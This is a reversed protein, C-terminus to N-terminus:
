CGVPCVDPAGQDSTSSRRGRELWRSLDAEDYVVRRGLRIFAPGGGSCRKNNLFSESVRLYRAAEAINLLSRTPSTTSM